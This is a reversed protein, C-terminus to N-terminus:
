AAALTDPRSGALSDIPMPLPSFRQPKLIRGPIHEGPIGGCAPKFMFSRPIAIAM